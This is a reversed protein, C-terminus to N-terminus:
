RLGARFDQTTALRWTEGGDASRLLLASTYPNGADEADDKRPSYSFVLYLRGDRDMALHHHYIAYGPAPPVVLPWADEWSGGARRRVLSLARYPHGMHYGDVGRRLQRSVVYLTDDADRVFALYTQRGREPEAPSRRWGRTVIPVPSTWGGAVDGPRLSVLHYFTDAHAGTIVHLHGARDMAIGPTCHVDNPPPAHALLVGPGLRGTRRDLTAAFIPVGPAGDEGVEGWVFHTRGNRTVFCTAGGSHQTYGIFDRTVEVIGGLELGRDTKVPVVIRLVHRDAWRAPHEAVLHWLAIVPPGPLPEPGDPLEMACAGWRMPYFPKGGPVPKRYQDAGTREMPLVLCQWTRCLDRSYLLLHRRSGDALVIRLLTYTDDDRDFVVRGSMWGGCFETCVFDPFEARVAGLLDLNVWEDGELTQVFGTGHVDGGRSRIYPRNHSDFAPVNAVFEAPRVDEPRYLGLLISAKGRIACPGESADAALITTAGLSVFLVGAMLVALRHSAKGCQWPAPGRPSM